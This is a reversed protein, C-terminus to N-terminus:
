EMNYTNYQTVAQAKYLFDSQPYTLWDFSLILCSIQDNSYTLMTLRWKAHSLHKYEQLM